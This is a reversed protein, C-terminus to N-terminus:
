ADTRRRRRKRRKKRNKEGRKAGLGQNVLVSQKRRTFTNRYSFANGDSSRSRKPLSM